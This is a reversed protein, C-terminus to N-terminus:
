MLKPSLLIQTMSKQPGHYVVHHLPEDYFDGNFSSLCTFLCSFNIFLIIYCFSLRLFVHFYQIIPSVIPTFLDDGNRKKKIEEM